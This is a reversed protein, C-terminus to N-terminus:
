PKAGTPAATNLHTRLAEIADACERQNAPSNSRDVDVRKRGYRFVLQMAWEVWQADVALATLMEPTPEVPVLVFGAPVSPQNTPRGETDSQSGPAPPEDREAFCNIPTNRKTSFNLHWMAGGPMTVGMWWHGDNMQELHVNVNDAFFEDLKGLSNNRIEVDGPVACVVADSVLHSNKVEEDGIEGAAGAIHLAREVARAYARHALYQNEKCGKGWQADTIADIQKDTLKM